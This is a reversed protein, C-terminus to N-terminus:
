YINVNKINPNNQKKETLVFVELEREEDKLDLGYSQLVKRVSPIDQWSKLKFEMDVNGKYGTEDFVPPNGYFQNLKWVISSLGLNELKIDPTKLAGFNEGGTAKTAINAIFGTRVLALCKIKRKEYRGHLGLLNDLSEITAKAVQQDTQNTDPGMSEYCVRTRQRVVSNPETSDEQRIYKLPEKVELIVYSPSLLKVNNMVMGWRSIYINLIPLNIIYDRRLHNVSDRVTGSKTFIGDQYCGFVAVYRRIKQDGSFKNIDQQILPKKTDAVPMFDNKIPWNNNKGELIKQINDATVYDQETIAVLKGKYIWVLHSVFRHPFYENLLKNEVIWPLQVNSRSLFGKKNNLFKRIFVEDERKLMGPAYNEGGIVVMIKVKDGFQRQLNDKKPLGEICSSCSTYMFDLILLRDFYNALRGSKLAGNVEVIKSLFVDPVKDGIKLGKVRNVPLTRNLQKQAQVTLNLLAFLILINFKM